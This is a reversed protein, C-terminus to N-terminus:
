LNWIDEPNVYKVNASKFTYINNQNPTSLWVTYWVPIANCLLEMMEHEYQKLNSSAIIKTAVIYRKKNPGVIDEYFDVRVINNRWTLIGVSDFGEAFRVGNHAVGLGAETVSFLADKGPDCVCLRLNEAIISDFGDSPWPSAIHYKDVLAQAEERTLEKKVFSM